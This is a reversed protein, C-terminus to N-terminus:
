SNNGAGSTGRESVAVSLRNARDASDLAKLRRVAKVDSRKLRGPPM